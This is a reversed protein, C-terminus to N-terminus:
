DRRNYIRNLYEEIKDWDEEDPQFKRLEKEKEIQEQTMGEKESETLLNLHDKMVELDHDDVVDDAM